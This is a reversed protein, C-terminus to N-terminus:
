IIKWFVFIRTIGPGVWGSGYYDRFNQIKEKKAFGRLCGSCLSVPQVLVGVTNLCGCHLGATSLHLFGSNIGSMVSGSHLSIIGSM